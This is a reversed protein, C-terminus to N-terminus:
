LLLLGILKKREWAVMPQCSQRIAGSRSSLSLTMTWSAYILASQPNVKVVTVWPMDWCKPVNELAAATKHNVKHTARGPPSYESETKTMGKRVLRETTLPVINKFESLLLFCHVDKKAEQLLDYPCLAYACRNWSSMCACAYIFVNLVISASTLGEKGPSLFSSKQQWIKSQKSKSSFKYSMFVLVSDGSGKDVQGPSLAHPLGLTRFCFVLTALQPKRGARLVTTLVSGHPSSFASQGKLVKGRLM